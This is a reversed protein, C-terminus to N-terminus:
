TSKNTGKRLTGDFQSLVDHLAMVGPMRVVKGRARLEWWCEAGGRYTVVVTLPKRREREYLRKTPSGEAPEQKHGGAPVRITRTSWKWTTSPIRGNSAPDM